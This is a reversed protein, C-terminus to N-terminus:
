PQTAPAVRHAALAPRGDIVLQRLRAHGSPALAVIACVDNSRRMRNEIDRGKGEPVFFAELGYDLTLTLDRREFHKRTEDWNTLDGDWMPNDGTWRWAQVRRVRGCLNLAGEIPGNSISVAAYIEPAATDPSPSRPELQVYLTRDRLMQELDSRWRYRSHNQDVWVEEEGADLWDGLVRVDTGPSAPWSPQDADPPPVDASDGRLLRLRSLDYSLIVYEGRFLSRPDIPQVVRLAIEKGVWLPYAHAVLMGALIGACILGTLIALIAKPM